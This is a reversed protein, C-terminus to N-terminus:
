RVVPGIRTLGDPLSWGYSVTVIPTAGWFSWTRSLEIGGLARYFRRAGENKALVDVWLATVGSSSMRTAFVRVLERGLGTRAHTPLVYLMDLRAMRTADGQSGGSAFAVVVDDVAAVLTVRLERRRSLGLVHLWRARSSPVSMRALHAAPLIGAYSARWTAVEVVAMAEADDTTADRVIAAGPLPSGVM